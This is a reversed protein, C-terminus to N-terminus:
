FIFSNKNKKSFHVFQLKSKIILRNRPIKTLIIQHYRLFTGNINVRSVIDKTTSM